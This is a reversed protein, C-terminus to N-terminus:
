SNKLLDKLEKEHMKIYLCSLFGKQLKKDTKFSKVEFEADAKGFRVIHNNEIEIKNEEEYALGYAGVQYLMDEYIGSSTKFDILSFKGDVEAICDLTGVFNYRKSYVLQETAIFKVEHEAEWERFALYCNKVEKDKPMAPMKKIIGLKFKIYEHILDHAQTGKDGATDRKVRWANKAEKIANDDILMGGSVFESIKDVAMKVAWPILAPKDLVSLAGTVSKLWEGNNRNIYVHKYRGHKEYFDVIIEGNYVEFSKTPTYEM